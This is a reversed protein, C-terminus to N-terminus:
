RSILKSFFKMRHPSTLIAWVIAVVELFTVAPEFYAYRWARYRIAKAIGTILPIVWTLALLIWLGLKLVDSPSSYDIWTFQRTAIDKLYNREINRKRKWFITGLKTIHTHYMGPSPLYAFMDFGHHVLHVVVDLEMFKEHNLIGAKKLYSMKYLCSGTPPIREPTYKCVAYGAKHEVITDEVRDSFFSFLPSSYFSFSAFYQSLPPDSPDPIIDTVSGVIKNDEHPALMTAFWEDGVLRNDADLFIFYKGRAKRLGVMKLRQADKTRDKYIRVPYRKALKVTDDTSYNDVVIVDLKEKPYKQRYISDLCRVIHKEENYAPIVVSIIPKM